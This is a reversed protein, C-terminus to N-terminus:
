FCTAPDRKNHKGRGISVRPPPHRSGDNTPARLDRRRDQTMGSWKAKATGAHETIGKMLGAKNVGLDVSHRSGVSRGTSGLVYPDGSFGETPEIGHHSM